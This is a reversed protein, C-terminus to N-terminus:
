TDKTTQEALLSRDFLKSQNLVKNGENKKAVSLEEQKSRRELRRGAVLSVEPSDTPSDATLDVEILTTRKVDEQNKHPSTMKSPAELELMTGPTSKDNRESGVLYWFSMLKLPENQEHQHQRQHDPKLIKRTTYNWKGGSSRRYM